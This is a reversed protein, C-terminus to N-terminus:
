NKKNLNNRFYSMTLEMYLLTYIKTIPKMTRGGHLSLSTKKQRDRIISVHTEISTAFCCYFFQLLRDEPM